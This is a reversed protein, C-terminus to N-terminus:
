TFYEHELGVRESVCLSAVEIQIGCVNLSFGASLVLRACVSRRRLIPGCVFLLSAMKAWNSVLQSRCVTLVLQWHKKKNIHILQSYLPNIKCVLKCSEREGEREMEKIVHMVAATLCATADFSKNFLSCLPKQLTVYSIIIINEEKLTTVPTHTHTGTRTSSYKANYPM